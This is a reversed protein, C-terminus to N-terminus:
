DALLGEAAQRADSVVGRLDGGAEALEDLLAMRQERIGSELDAVAGAMAEGNEQRLADLYESQWDDLTDLWAVVGSHHDPLVDPALDEVATEIEARWGAVAETTAPLDAGTPAIPLDPLTLARGAALRYALLRNARGTVEMVDGALAAAAERPPDALAGAGTFVGRAAREAALVRETSASLDPAEESGLGAAVEELPSLAERLVATDARLSALSEREERAPRQIAAALLAVLVVTATLAAVVASLRIRSGGLKRRRVVEPKWWELASPDVETTEWLSSVRSRSDMGGSPAPASSVIAPMPRPRPIREVAVQYPEDFFGLVEMGPLRM